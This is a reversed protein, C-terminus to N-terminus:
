PFQTKLFHEELAGPATGEIDPLTQKCHARLERLRDRRKANTDSPDGVLWKQVEVTWDGRLRDSPNSVDGGKSKRRCRLEQYLKRFPTDLTKEEDFHFPEERFQFIMWAVESAVPKEPKGSGGGLADQWTLKLFEEIKSYCQDLPLSKLSKLVKRGLRKNSPSYDVHLAWVFKFVEEISLEGYGVVWPSKAATLRALLRPTINNVSEGCLTEPIDLYICNRHFQEVAQREAYEDM